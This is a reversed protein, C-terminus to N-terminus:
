VQDLAAEVRQKIEWLRKTDARNLMKMSFFIPYGNISRPGAKSMEEYLLDAQSLKLRRWLGPGGLALGMFVSPTMQKQESRHINRDCFIRGERLGLYLEKLEEDTHLRGCSYFVVPYAPNVQMIM